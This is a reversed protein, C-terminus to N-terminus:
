TLSGISTYGEAVQRRRSRRRLAATKCRAADAQGLQEARLDADEFLLTKRSLRLGNRGRERVGPGAVTFGTQRARVV